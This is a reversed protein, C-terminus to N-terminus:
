TASVKLTYKRTFNDPVIDGKGAPEPSLPGIRVFYTGATAIEAETGTVSEGPTDASAVDVVTGGASLLTYKIRINTPM